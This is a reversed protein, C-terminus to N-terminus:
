TFRTFPRDFFSVPDDVKLAERVLFAEGLKAEILSGYYRHIGEIRDLFDPHSITTQPEQSDPDHFQSRYAHLARVKKEYFETVDVVFSPPARHPLLYYIVRNPRHPKGDTELQSLGALYAAEAVLPGAAAHDPHNTEWSNTFVLRPRLERLTRVVALKSQWDVTLRGDGLDLCQRTSVELIKAAEQAENARQERSGRTGTEGATLDVIATRYGLSALRLLTGGMFLEVDDPHPGFALVDIDMEM